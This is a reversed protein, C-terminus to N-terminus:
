LRNFYSIVSLRNFVGAQGRTSVEQRTTYQRFSPTVIYIAKVCFANVNEKAPL